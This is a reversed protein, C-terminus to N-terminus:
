LVAGFDHKLDCFMYGLCSNSELRLNSADFSILWALLFRAQCESGLSGCVWARGVGLTMVSVWDGAVPVFPM